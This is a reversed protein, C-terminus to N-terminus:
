STTSASRPGGRSGARPIFTDRTAITVRSGQGCNGDADPETLASVAQWSGVDSWDFAGRVVAVNSSKEMVAYDISIDPVAAFLAPDIELMAPNGQASLHQWVRRVSELFRRRTSQSPM